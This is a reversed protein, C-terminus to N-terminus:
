GKMSPEDDLYRLVEYHALDLMRSIRDVCEDGVAHGLLRALFAARVANILAKCGPDGSQPLADLEAQFERLDKETLNKIPEAEGDLSVIGDRLALVVPRGQEEAIIVEM